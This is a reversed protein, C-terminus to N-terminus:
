LARDDVELLNHIRRVESLDAMLAQAMQKIFYSSVRGRLTLIRCHPDYECEVKRLEYYGSDHLRQVAAQGVGHEEDSMVTTWSKM